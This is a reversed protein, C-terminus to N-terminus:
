VANPKGRKPRLLLMLEGRSFHAKRHTNDGGLTSFRTKVMRRDMVFYKEALERVVKGSLKNSAEGAPFTLVVRVQKRALTRLLDELAIKSEGTTSYASHPRQKIPPYRGTGSVKVSRGRAITELVHYFRSYHVGSYPPDVFALDGKRLTRAVRNADGLRAVGKKTAHQSALAVLAKETYTPIDRRWADQIWERATSTNGFPQATHGPAAACQSAGELLSALAVRRVPKGVPLTARLADIWLAQLPSYYYGGYAHTVTAGEIRNCIRRADIVHRNLLRRNYESQLRQAREFERLFKTELFKGARAQWRAWVGESDIAETRELVAGTLVTAFSQLDVALVPTNTGRAVHSSVVGSGSFLDVFRDASRAERVLMTGLGNQLMARKSGMYKM